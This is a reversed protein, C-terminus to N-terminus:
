RILLPRNGPMNGVGSADGFRSCAAHARARVPQYRGLHRRFCDRPRAYVARWLGPRRHPVAPDARHVAANGADFLAAETCRGHLAAVPDDDATGFLVATRSRTPQPRFDARGIGLGVRAMCDGGASAPEDRHDAGPCLGRARNKAPPWLDRVHRM